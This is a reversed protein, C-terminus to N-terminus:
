MAPSKFPSSHAHRKPKEQEEKRGIWM